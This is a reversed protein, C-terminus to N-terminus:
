RIYAYRLFIELIGLYINKKRRINWERPEGLNCYEYEINLEINMIIPLWEPALKILISYLM